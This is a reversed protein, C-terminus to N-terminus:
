VTKYHHPLANPAIRTLNNHTYSKEYRFPLILFKGCKSVKKKKACTGLATYYTSEDIFINSQYM